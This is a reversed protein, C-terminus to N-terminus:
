AKKVSKRLIIKGTKLLIKLPSKRKIKTLSVVSKLGAKGMEYLPQKVTSLSIDPSSALPIDDFGIISIDRPIKFGRKKAEEMVGLAMEDGAVFIASPMEECKVLKRFAEIGSARTWDGKIIYKKNLSIKNKELGEIYGYLRDKGIKAGLKGTIIAIKKHGLSALKDIIKVVQYNNDMGICNYVSRDDFYELVMYPIKLKIAQKVLNENEFLDAFLVGDIGKFNFKTKKNAIHILLDVGEEFAADKAGSIKEMASFTGFMDKYHHIVLGIVLNKKM